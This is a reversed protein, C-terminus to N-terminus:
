TLRITISRRLFYYTVLPHSCLFFAVLGAFNWYIIIPFSLFFKFTGLPDMTISSPHAQLPLYLISLAIPKQSWGRSPPLFTREMWLHLLLGSTLCSIVQTRTLPKTKRSSCRQIMANAHCAICCHNEVQLSCGRQLGCILYGAYWIHESHNLVTTFNYNCLLLLTIKHNLTM